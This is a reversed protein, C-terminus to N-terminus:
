LHRSQQSALRVGEGFIDSIIFIVIFFIFSSSFFHDSGDIIIIMLSGLRETTLSLSLVSTTFLITKAAAPPDMERIPSHAAYISDKGIFRNVL